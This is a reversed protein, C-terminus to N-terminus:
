TQIECSSYQDHPAYSNESDRFDVRKEESNRFHCLNRETNRFELIIETDSIWANKSWFKPLSSNKIWYKPIEVLFIMKQDFNSLIVFFLGFLETDSNCSNKQPIEFILPFIKPIESIM